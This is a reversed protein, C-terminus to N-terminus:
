EGKKPLEIRFLVGKYSEAEIYMDANEVFVRGKLYKTVIERVIYLGIGTGVSQHKTTFYPEFIRDIIKESIGGANDAILIIVKEDKEYIEINIYKKYSFENALFADKSNNIINIMAQLLINDVEVLYLEESLDLTLKIDYNKLTLNLIKDIKEELLKYTIFSKSENPKLFNRFDEITQSLYETSVNLLEMNKDFSNKDLMNMDNQMKMGTAISRIVSLPQRWQHAINSLMEGMAAMKSQQMLYKEKERLSNKYKTFKETLLKSLYLSFLLTLLLMVACIFFFEKLMYEKKQLLFEKKQELQENLDNIYFGTGIIWGWQSFDKVYSIKLNNLSNEEKIKPTYEIFSNGNKTEEVIRNILGINLSYIEDKDYSYEENLYVKENKYDIVFFYNKKSSSFMKLNNLFEEKEIDVFDDIYEGTGIICNYPEFYKYFSIKRFPKDDKDNKYWYYTDFSESKNNITEIIKQVFNYGKIDKYASLNQGELQKNLPQLLKTGKEDDIFFYGRGNNYIIGGLANKITQFVHEKQHISNNHPTIEHKYINTALSHAEYVRSKLEKKLRDESSKKKEELISYVKEVEYKIRNKNEEFYTQSLLAIENKYNKNINYLVVQVIIIFFLINLVFPTYKIFFIIRKSSTEM